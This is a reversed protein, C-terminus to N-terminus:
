TSLYASPSTRTVPRAPVGAVVTSAAVDHSVVAAAAVIAGDGITVGKLVVANVGLWVNSGISVPRIDFGQLRYPTDGADTRHDQDRITVNAAVLADAGITIRGCAVITSGTGIFGDAGIALVGESVLVCRPEIVTRAGIELTAGLRVRIRTGAGLM